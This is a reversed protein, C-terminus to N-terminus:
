YDEDVVLLQIVSDDIFVVIYCDEGEMFDEFYSCEKDYGFDSFKLLYVMCSMEMGYEIYFVVVFEDVLQIWMELWKSFVKVWEDYVKKIVLRFRLCLFFFGM